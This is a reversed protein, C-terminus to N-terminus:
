LEVYLEPRFRPTCVCLFILDESRSTNAIKQSVGKDILVVCKEGVAVPESDGVTVLGEGSLVIYREVVGTVSHLATTVGPKVRAQAISCEPDNPSNLLEIISCHEDTEFETEPKYPYIMPLVGYPGVLPKAVM